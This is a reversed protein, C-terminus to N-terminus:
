VPNLITSAAIQAAERNKRIEEVQARETETIVGRGAIIDAIIQEAKAAGEKSIREREAAEAGMEALRAKEKAKTTDDAIANIGAVARGEAEKAAKAENVRETLVAQADAVRQAWKEAEASDEGFQAVNANYAAQATTLDSLEREMGKYGAAYERLQDANMLEPMTFDIALFERVVQTLSIVGNAADILLPALNVLASSLQASIVRSMMDLKTQAEEANRILSEEVVVGLARADARMQEMGASGERLLNVMGAGSEGFLKMALASRQAPDEVRNLADAITSLARDLGFGKLQGAELGLAKLAVRGEGMGLAAEGLNKSLVQLSQDLKDQSVGASEAVARLEQLADTTIGIKDATKGIEDLRAVTSKLGALVAGGSLFGGVLPLALRKLADGARGYTSTLRDASQKARREMDDSSRRQLANAKALSKELKDIRAEVDVVLGPLASNM